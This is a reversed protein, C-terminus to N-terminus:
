EHGAGIKTGTPTMTPPVVELLGLLYLFAQAYPSHKTSASVREWDIQERLSRAVPIAKALDCDHQSLSLLKHEMLASASLVPLSLANVQIVSTDALTEDTVPHEVPRFILDVLLDGDYVKVLWDEPPREARFGEEALADLVRDADQEKILFDVDHESSTGGRAYVAFSGTLAFPIEHRKLVSAVRKLTLLLDTGIETVM